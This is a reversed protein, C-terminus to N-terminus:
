NYVREERQVLERIKSIKEKTESYHADYPRRPHILLEPKLYGDFVELVENCGKKLLELEQQSPRFKGKQWDIVFKEFTRGTRFFIILMLDRVKETRENEGAVLYKEKALFYLDYIEPLSIKEEKEMAPYIKEFIESLNKELPSTKM